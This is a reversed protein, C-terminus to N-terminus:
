NKTINLSETLEIKRGDPDKIIATYGWKTQKPLQLTLIAEQQIIKMLEELSEIQLGLRLSSDPTLQKPLLPYIEFVLEDITSSYHWPGNGHRHYTFTLGLKTYWDALLQPTPTRIVLLNVKM